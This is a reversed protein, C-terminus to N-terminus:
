GVRWLASYFHEFMQLGGKDCRVYYRVTQGAQAAFDVCACTMTMPYTETAMSVETAGVMLYAEYSSLSVTGWVGFGFFCRYTGADPVTLASGKAAIGSASRTNPALPDSSYSTSKGFNGTWYTSTLGKVGDVALKLDEVSVPQDGIGGSQESGTMLSLDEVSAPETGSVAM